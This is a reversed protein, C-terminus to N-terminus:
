QRVSAVSSGALTKQCCWPSVLGKRKRASAPAAATLPSALWTSLRCRSMDGCFGGAVHGRLGVTRPIILRGGDRESAAVRRGGGQRGRDRGRGTEAWSGADQPLCLELVVWALFPLGGDHFRESAPNVLWLSLLPYSCM